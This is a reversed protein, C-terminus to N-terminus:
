LGFRALTERQAEADRVSVMNMGKHWNVMTKRHRKLSQIIRLMWAVPLLFPYTKLWPYRNEFEIRNRFLQKRLARGNAAQSALGRKYDGHLGGKLVYNAMEIMLPSEEGNGFLYESLNLLNQAAEFIKDEILRENVKGWDPQLPHRNRYIWLDLIYRIGPGSGALDHVAHGILNLAYGEESLRNKEEDVFGWDPYNEIGAKTKRYLLRGHFEVGLKEWFLFQEDGSETGKFKGGIKEIAERITPREELKIYFDLDSMFRFHTQPYDKKLVAGKLLAYHIGADALTKEIQELCYGQRVERVVMQNFVNQMQPTLNDPVSPNNKAIEWVMTELHHRRALYWVGAWDIHNPLGEDSIVARLLQVFQKESKTMDSLNTRNQKGLTYGVSM